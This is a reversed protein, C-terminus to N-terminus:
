NSAFLFGLMVDLHHRGSVNYTPRQSLTVEPGNFVSPENMDNWIYLISTSGVYNNFSFKDAWWSRIQPDLMDLYSSSGPWCWGDYDSGHKDKVYYGKQSAEKHLSFSEDRKIHPDVITVMHRGKAAIKKQMQKPDPFLINDWTFYRKGDTHEIDLWLVDYPINHEDFKADVEAVDAEDKYNWRCQHYAISFLQPLRTTGTVSAYQRVVDKPGPGVFIFADLMGSEATWVTDVGNSTSEAASAAGQEQDRGSAMVDILMEASNLWFFGTTQESSHSLMFPVSGYLGFPSEHVYEFVDLNFLRYPESEIGPGRTPKLSFSTAHEPIGYVHKAGHFSVDFSISQPGHPRTDKHSRFTEEWNENEQKERLYDIHFLGKSNVSVLNKGAQRVHLQFPSHQLVVELGASLHVVSSGDKETVRQLWLRNEELNPELVDPVEFRRKGSPLKEEQVRFRVIGDRYASIEIVLVEGLAESVLRARLRGKSLSVDQVVLDSSGSARGRAEKCFPTNHCKHFEEVKWGTVCGHNLGQLVLLLFLLQSLGIQVVRAVM